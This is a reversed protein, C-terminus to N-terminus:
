MIQVTEFTNISVSLLPTALINFLPIKKKSDQIKNEVEKVVTCLM